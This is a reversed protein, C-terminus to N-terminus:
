GYAAMAEEEDDFDYVQEVRAPQARPLAPKAKPAAFAVKPPEMAKNVSYLSNYFQAVRPHAMVKSKDFNHVELGEQSVARSLAVYAQGKEFIRKLDIKVRELTQGQAKHISLAWALILPLQSRQAQVEGNPLEIKWDEPMVLLDRSTGDALTFRVLPFEKGSNPNSDKSNSFRATVSPRQKMAEAQVAEIGDDLLEPNQDYIEFTTESMFAIVKGLSGNVLGDDMNKILMVQAGKKLELSKPAMMNSLLKDRQNQDQITGTDLADYRYCKGVLARMRYANSNEVENRTPFLETAELTDEFKPKRNLKKFARVTDDTIKGLRMENLMNAFVPDKQRFVETLGITHHVATSWTGADFAFKVGRAKNDYEPVPPLQFFDGTIVLQIGGFPRGNNRMARAIAELKDFLDGDVMSIEDIILIKIKLWRNKAKPNRKIKKVLTPVDEKGLGIGSFSHLTVGGINCAALGTSATVAVREPERIFKKRLDAIIARMLVSKGTGASGTFFVSKNQNVVLDLVRRQEQSLTIPAVAVIKTCHRSELAEAAAEDNKRAAKQKDKFRKKEERIASGTSNWPLKKDKPTYNYKGSKPCASSEHGTQKCHICIRVPSSGNALAAEADEEEEEEEEIRASIEDEEARKQLWPLTRRKSPQPPNDDEITEVLELAAAEGRQRKVGPPTARHSPSSESWTVGSSSPIYSRQHSPTPHQLQPLTYPSKASEKQSSPRPPAAMPLAPPIEFDMDLDLDADDDFDNEDFHVAPHSTFSKPLASVDQMSYITDPTNQFADLNNLISSLGTTSATSAISESKQRMTQIVNPSKARLNKSPNSFNSPKSPNRYNTYGGISQSSRQAKKFQEQINGDQAPSSSPFLQKELPTKSPPPQHEQVARGLMVDAITSYRLPANLIPSVSSFFPRPVKRSSALLGRTALSFSALCFDAEIATQLLIIKADLLRSKSVRYTQQPASLLPVEEVVVQQRYRLALNPRLTMRFFRSDGACKLDWKEAKMKFPEGQAFWQVHTIEVWDNQLNLPCAFYRHSYVPGFDHRSTLHIVYPTQPTLPNNRLAELTLVPVPTDSQPAPTSISPPPVNTEQHYDGLILALLDATRQKQIAFALFSRFIADHLERNPDNHLKNDQSTRVPVASSCCFISDTSTNLTM